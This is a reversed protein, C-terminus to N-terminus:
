TPGEGWRNGWSSPGHASARPSQAASTPLAAAAGDEARSSRETWKKPSNGLVLLGWSLQKDLHSLMSPCHLVSRQMTRGSGQFALYRLTIPWQVGFYGMISGFYSRVPSSYICVHKNIYTCVHIYMYAYIYM